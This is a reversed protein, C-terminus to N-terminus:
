ITQARAWETLKTTADETRATAVYEDHLEQLKTFSYRGTPTEVRAVPHHGSRLDFREQTGGDDFVIVRGVRSAYAKRDTQHCTTVTYARRGPRNHDIVRSNEIIFTTRILRQTKDIRTSTM